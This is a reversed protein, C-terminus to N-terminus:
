QRDYVEVSKFAEGKENVGSMTVVVTKHDASLAAHNKGVEKGNITFTFERTRDDIKKMVETLGAPRPPVSETYNLPGGATPVTFKSSRTRGSLTTVNISVSTTGGEAAVIITGDKLERDQAFKSKAPNLKWTGAFVEDAGLVSFGFSLAVLGCILKKLM